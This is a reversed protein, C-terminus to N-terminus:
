RTPGAEVLRIRQDMDARCRADGRHADRVKRLMSAMADPSLHAEALLRLGIADARSELDLRKPQGHLSAVCQVHRGDILHGLEHAVAAALEDDTLLRALGRTVFVEGGPWAFAGASDSALISLHIPRDAICRLVPECAQRAQEAAADGELGGYRQVWAQSPGASAPPLGACGVAGVALGLAFM